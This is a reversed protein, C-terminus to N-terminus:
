QEELLWDVVNTVEVGDEFGLGMRDYTLLLSRAGGRALGRLPALERKRTEADLVSASVQVYLKEEAKEAVFDIELSDTKGVRLEYGRLKLENCVANELAFGYDGRPFGLLMNKVGLDSPYYKDLGQLLGGGKVDLRRVRYFLFADVLAQLYREITEGSTKRHASKLRNEIATVSVRSGATNALFCAIDNFVLPNRIQVHQAVDKVFVTNYIGSLVTQALDRDDGQEVVPPLGGFELYREFAKEVDQEEAFALFEKFSLPFVGVEVYRGSLLTALQSSLLYANSGTLYVDVDFDVRMANVAKEWSEVLQVEDLLLYCHGKGEVRERMRSVLDRYDVIDFCASSEFNMEIIRDGPVGKQKLRGAFLKLLSSKGSRRMGVVVKILGNDRLAELQALYRPRNKLEM